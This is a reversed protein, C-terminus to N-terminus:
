DNFKISWALGMLGGVIMIAGYPICHMRINKTFAALVCLLGLTFVIANVLVNIFFRIKIKRLEKNM